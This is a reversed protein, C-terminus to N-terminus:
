GLKDLIRQLYKKKFYYDKVQLLEEKSTVGEQYSDLIPKIDNYLENNWEETKQKIRNRATADDPDAEMLLENLELMEM